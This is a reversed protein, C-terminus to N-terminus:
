CSGTRQFAPRYTAPTVKETSQLDLLAHSSQSWRETSCSASSTDGGEINEIQIQQALVQSHADRGGWGKGSRM